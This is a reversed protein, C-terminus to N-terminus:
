FDEGIEEGIEDEENGPNAKTSIGMASYINEVMEPDLYPTIIINSARMKQLYHYADESNSQGYYYEILQAYVDGIRIATEVENTELLENCMQVMRHPESKLFNRASVFKEIITIRHQLMDVKEDKNVANSKVLQKMAEKMAGLAKEYDRYEDIEVQACADYFGSLQEFAKAKSYFTIITKMIEPDNHWDSNQLYNAALVYVEANRATNAYNTIKEADASKLLCKM